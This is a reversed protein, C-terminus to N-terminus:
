SGEILIVILEKPGHVGLTLTQEIDATRSPGTIFVVNSAQHNIDRNAQIFHAMSPVLQEATIIAIHIPPLLSAHRGRGAGFQLALSGTDAMGGMSGTVGVQAGELVQQAVTREEGSPPLHTSLREYKAQLSGNLGAIPLHEDEWSLYQVVEYQEFLALVENRAEAETAVRKFVGNVLELEKGFSEVLESWEFPALPPVVPREVAAEPLHASQLQKRINEFFREKNM